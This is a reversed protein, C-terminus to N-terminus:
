LHNQLVKWISVHWHSQKEASKSPNKKWHAAKQAGKAQKRKDSLKQKLSEKVWCPQCYDPRPTTVSVSSLKEFIHNIVSLEHNLVFTCNINWLPGPLNPYSKLLCFWWKFHMKNKCLSDKVLILSDHDRTESGSTTNPSFRHLMKTLWKRNIRITEGRTYRVNLEVEKRKNNRIQEQWTVVQKEKAEDNDADKRTRQRM